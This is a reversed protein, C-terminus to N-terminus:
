RFFFFKISLIKRKIGIIFAIFDIVNTFSVFYFAKIITLISM